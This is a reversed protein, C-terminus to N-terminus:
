CVIKGQFENSTKLKIESLEEFLKVKDDDIQIVVDVLFGSSQKRTYETLSPHHSNVLKSQTLLISYMVKAMKKDSIPLKFYGYM